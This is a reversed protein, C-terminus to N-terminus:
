YRAHGDQFPFSSHPIPFSHHAIPLPFSSHAIARVWRGIQRAWDVAMIGRGSSIDPSSNTEPEKRKWAYSKIAAGSARNRANRGLVRAIRNMITMTTHKEM